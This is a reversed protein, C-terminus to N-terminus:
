SRSSNLFAYIRQCVSVFHNAGKIDIFRMPRIKRGAAVNAKYQRETEIFGWACDWTTEDCTEFIIEVGPLISQTLDEDSLARKAMERIASQMPASFMPVERGAAVGDVNFKMEEATM